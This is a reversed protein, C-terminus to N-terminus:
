LITHNIPYNLDIKEIISIFDKAGYETLDGPMVWVDEGKHLAIYCLESDTLRTVYHGKLYKHRYFKNSKIYNITSQVNGWTVKEDKSSYRSLTINGDPHKFYIKETNDLLDIFEEISEIPRIKNIEIEM